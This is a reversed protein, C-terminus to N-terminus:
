ESFESVPERAQGMRERPLCQKLAHALTPAFVPEIGEAGSIDDKASDPLVCRRFGLRSAERLRRHVQPVGRVEGSLGVEGLAVIEPGLPVNRVSSAIALAVAMDTAPERIQLGGVVNVLIDQDPLKLGVRRSLVAVLMLLRNYDVGNATRRPVALASPSTLAQVEVVLPRSGELVPVVASGVADGRHQSLLMTSPDSVEELGNGGMQFIGVENTSGFRNKTSRLIRYASLSEGEFHLVVDVMHELVRPGALTGDKTVHGSMLVPVARSKAWRMLRLSCERVQAVTGPGSPIDQAYPTQISDIVALAPQFNELHEVVRDVDAEALLYVGKGSFGLRESRLKIQHVSEEGAVYLVGKGTSAVSQAAQLLLTSKGVGPEGAILTLSGPVLGGGLVRNLEESAMPIRAQQDTPVQSLEQLQPSEANHWGQRTSRPPRPSEVLPAHEGCSPCFGMWKSTEYGCGQCFFTARTKEKPM